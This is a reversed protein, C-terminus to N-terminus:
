IVLKTAEQVYWSYNINNFRFDKVDNCVTVNYGACVQNVRLAYTSRNKTCVREDWMGGTEAMIRDYDADSVGNAKKFAGPKGLAPAEKTLPAGDTTIYYRTARKQQVQGRWMLSDGGRTKVACMFDYPNLCLRIYAEIDCGWVMHAVAARVSIPNSLDKHWAPPQANAISGIYDLADPTWYAGKLKYKIAM